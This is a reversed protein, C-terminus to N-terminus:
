EAESLKLYRPEIYNTTVALFGPLEVMVRRNKKIRVIKGRVGDFLGGTVEVLQGERLKDSIQTLYIIDEDLSSAVTIFDEMARDPIVLPRSAIRDWYYNVLTQEGLSRIFADIGARTWRVFCLNSVAPVLKKEEKGRVSMNRWMMPVFTRVGKENLLTQVKLERSYTARLAYWMEEEDHCSALVGASTTKPCGPKTNLTKGIPKTSDLM